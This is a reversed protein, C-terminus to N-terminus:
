ANISLGSRSFRIYFKPNACFRRSFRVASGAAVPFLRLHFPRLRLSLELLLTMSITSSVRYRSRNGSLGQGADRPRALLRAPHQTPTRRKRPHRLRSPRLRDRLGLITGATRQLRAPDPASGAPPDFYDGLLVVHDCAATDEVALVYKLFALNEHLDPIVLIRM